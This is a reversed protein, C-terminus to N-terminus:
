TLNLDISGPDPNLPVIFVYLAVLAHMQENNTITRASPSTFLARVSALHQYFCCWVIWAVQKRTGPTFLFTNLDDLSIETEFIVGFRELFPYFLM